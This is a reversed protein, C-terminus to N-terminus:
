DGNDFDFSDEVGKTDVAVDTVKGNGELAVEAVKSVKEEKVKKMNKEDDIIDDNLNLDLEDFSYDEDFDDWGGDSNKIM